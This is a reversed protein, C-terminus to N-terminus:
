LVHALGRALEARLLVYLARRLIKRGPERLEVEVAVPPDLESGRRREPAAVAQGELHLEGVAAVEEGVAQGDVQDFAARDDVRAEARGLELVFRGTFQRLVESVRAEADQKGDVPEAALVAFDRAEEARRVEAHEALSLAEARRRAAERDVRRRRVPLLERLEDLHPDLSRGRCR